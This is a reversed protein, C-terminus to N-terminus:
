QLLDLDDDFEPIDDMMADLNEEHERQEKKLVDPDMSLYNLLDAEIEFKYGCHDVRGKCNMCIFCNDAYLYDDEDVESLGYEMQGDDNISVPTLCKVYKQYGLQSSSCERCEFQVMKKIAM